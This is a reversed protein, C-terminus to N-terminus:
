EGRRPADPCPACVGQQGRDSTTTAAPQRRNVARYTPTRAVTIVSPSTSPPVPTQEPAVPERRDQEESQNPSPIGTDRRNVPRRTVPRRTISSPVASARDLGLIKRLAALQSDTITTQTARVGAVMARLNARQAANLFSGQQAAAQVIQRIKRTEPVMNVERLWEEDSKATGPILMFEYNGPGAPKQEPADIRAIKETLQLVANIARRDGNHANFLLMQVLADGKSMRKSKGGRKVKVTQRLVELLVPALNRQGKRRGNPNGSQGKRFQTKVPPRKYGVDGETTSTSNPDRM